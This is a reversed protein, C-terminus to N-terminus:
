AAKSWLQRLDEPLIRMLKAVEEADIKEWMVEMVTRVGLEVDFRIGKPLERRVHDIFESVQRERTPTTTPRWGEYYVGRLLIPLQAGLHVANEPGIRDRLAHLTGKLLGYALHRDDVGLKTTISKLWLNTQQVTSDFVPLGTTSM